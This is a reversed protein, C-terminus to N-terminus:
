GMGREAAEFSWHSDISDPAISGAAETWTWIWEDSRADGWITRPLAIFTVVRTNPVIESDNVVDGPDIGITVVRGNAVAGELLAAIRAHTPSADAQTEFWTDGELNDLLPIVAELRRATAAQEDPAPPFARASAGLTIGVVLIAIVVVLTRV